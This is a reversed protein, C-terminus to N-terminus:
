GTARRERARALAVICAIVEDPSLASSEVTVADEAPRLPALARASDQLDRARVEALVQEYSVEDGRARLEAFRRRARQEDTATLFVKVEADPFVVTGIDRGELVVGGQAGFQRQLDLLAERVGRHRSVTSAGMSLEPTRIENGLERGDLLVRPVEGAAAELRLRGQQVLARALAEVAPADDLSLGQQRAAYAVARYLAGTDVLVYGLARAVGRAATTKGAGAPGDIAVVPRARM